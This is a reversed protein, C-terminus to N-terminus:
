KDLNILRRTKLDIKRYFCTERFEGALNRTHCIRASNIPEVLYLLSNQECNIRAEAVRFRQGSTEGKFWREDRSTSWLILNSTDRVEKFASRNTYGLLLVDKTLISQVVVPLISVGM